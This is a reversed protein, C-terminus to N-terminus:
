EINTWGVNLGMLQEVWDPNLVLKSGNTNNKTQDQQYKLAQKSTTMQGAKCGPTDKYDRAMPTPFTKGDKIGKERTPLGVISPHNSLGIQGYNAQDPIKTGEAVTPPPWSEVADKLKVSWKEGKKNERYFQGTKSIKAQVTGGEADSTRPTPYNIVDERLNKCGGKNAKESREEPKRVVNLHDMTSPTAWNKAQGGLYQVKKGNSYGYDSGKADNALPTAWSLSEKERIHCASKVRLSYEQRQETVWDKWTQCSMNSFQNDMTPKAQSSEVSTKSFCLELNVNKSEKVLTPISTALTKLEKEIELWQFDRAPFVVRSSLYKELFSKTHSPKLMLTSLHQMWSNAKWRRLWTRLLSPKSRWMLSEECAQCFQNLESESEKTDVACHYTHLQKPLIWM